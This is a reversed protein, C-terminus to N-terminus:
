HCEVQNAARVGLREEERKSFTADQERDRAACPGAHHSLRGPAADTDFLGQDFRVAVPQLLYRLEDFRAVQLHVHFIHHRELLGSARVLPELLAPASAFQDQLHAIVSTYPRASVLWLVADSPEVAPPGRVISASSRATASRVSSVTTRASTSMSPRRTPLRM